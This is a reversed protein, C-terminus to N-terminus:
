TLWWYVPIFLLSTVIGAIGMSFGSISGKMESESLLRATGIGHSSTGIAVGVSIDDRVGCLRLLQPGLVSGLLGTLVTFVAGLEPIGGLSRVIEISIPTTVSKPMMTVMLERTGGLASVLGAASLIGAASGVSIGAIMPLLRNRIKQAHKYLPVGLAVTAPGLLFEIMSGGVEYNQYPIHALALVAMIVGATVLLPNLPKWVKRLGLSMTYIIITLSIGFMPSQTFQEFTM